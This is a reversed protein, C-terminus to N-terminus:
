AYSGVIGTFRQFSITLNPASTNRQAVIRIDTATTTPGLGYIIPLTTYSVSNDNTLYPSALTSFGAGVWTGASTFNDPSHYVSDSVSFFLM